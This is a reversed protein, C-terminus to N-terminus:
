CKYKQVLLAFLSLVQLLKGDAHECFNISAAAAHARVRLVPEREGSMALTLAPLVDQL